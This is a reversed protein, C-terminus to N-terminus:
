GCQWATPKRNLLAQANTYVQHLVEAREQDSCCGLVEALVAATFITHEPGCKMGRMPEPTMFPSDTETLLRDKPVILASDRVEDAAKFTLPGGYAVYCGAEVWPRLIEADLNFCHLLVGAAPFGEEELIAFGEDHAERMHLILPLGAQHAIRIQRRFVERQVPRPSLDYHYDLGVEGLASVQSDKLYAILEEELADTYHKANHPHVGIGIRIDPVNDCCSEYGNEYLLVRAEEQWRSLSTFTELQNESPDVITCVFSVGHIACRALNESPNALMELHAHTDAVLSALKPADVEAYKGKKKKRLFSPSFVAAEANASAGSEVVVHTNQTNEM